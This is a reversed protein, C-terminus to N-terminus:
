VCLMVDSTGSNNTNGNLSSALFQTITDSDPYDETNDREIDETRLLCSTPSGVAM